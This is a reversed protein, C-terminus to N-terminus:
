KKTAFVYYCNNHFPTSKISFGREKLFSGLAEVNQKENDLNHVELLIFKIKEFVSSPTNYLIPFEAGECDLKLIDIKNLNNNSVIAALNTVPVTISSKNRTDFSQHISAISSEDPNEETFLTISGENKDTVAYQFINLQKEFAPNDKKLKKLHTINAPLPEYCFFTAKPRKSLILVPFFGVNAGIDVIIADEQLSPLFSSLEYFDEVFIEKFILYNNKNVEFHLANPKTTFHLTRFAREGKKYTYEKWNKINKRLFLYKSLFDKKL